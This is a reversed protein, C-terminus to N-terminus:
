AVKGNSGRVALYDMEETEPRLAPVIVEWVWAEHEPRRVFQLDAKAFDTTFRPLTSGDLWVCPNVAARHRGVVTQPQVILLAKKWGV